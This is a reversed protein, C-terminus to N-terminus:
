HSDVTVARHGRSLETVRLASKRSGQCDSWLDHTGEVLTSYLTHARLDATLSLRARATSLFLRSNKLSKDINTYEFPIPQHLHSIIILPLLISKQIIPLSYSTMGLGREGAM